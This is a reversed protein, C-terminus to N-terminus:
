WMSAQARIEEFLEKEWTNVVDIGAERCANRAVDTAPAFADASAGDSGALVIRAGRRGVYEVVASAGEHASAFEKIADALLDTDAVELTTEAM